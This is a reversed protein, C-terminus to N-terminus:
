MLISPCSIKQSYEWNRGMTNAADDTYCHHKTAAPATDAATITDDKGGSDQKQWGM